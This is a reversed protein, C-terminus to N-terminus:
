SIHGRRVHCQLKGSSWCGSRIALQFYYLPVAESTKCLTISATIKTWVLGLSSPNRRVICRIM